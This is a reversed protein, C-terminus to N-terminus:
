MCYQLAKNTSDPKEISEFIPDMGKQFSRGNSNFEDSMTLNYYINGIIHHRKDKPTDIDIFQSFSLQSFSTLLLLMYTFM